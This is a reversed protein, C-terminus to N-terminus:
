FNFEAPVTFPVKFSDYNPVIFMTKRKGLNIKIAGRRFMDRYCSEVHKYDRSQFVLDDRLVNQKEVAIFHLSSRKNDIVNNAKLKLEDLIVKDIWGFSKEEQRTRKNFRFGCKRNTKQEAQKIAEYDVYDALDVVKTQISFSCNDILYKNLQKRNFYVSPFNSVEEIGNEEAIRKAFLVSMKSSVKIYDIYPKLETNIFSRSVNLLIMIDEFSLTFGQTHYMHMLWDSYTGKSDDYEIQAM